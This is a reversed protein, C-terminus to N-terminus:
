CKVREYLYLYGLDKPPKESLAVKEDNYIVWRDDKLIHIVYHGSSTSNGMHSIFARLRYAGPGDRCAPGDKPTASSASTSNTTNDHQELDDAHSFIWDVAREINNDTNQLARISQARTFGMTMISAINDESITIEKKSGPIVFPSNFDPDTMHEVIWNMANEVSTSGTSYAGRLSGERSFGMEMLQQVMAEDIRVVPASVAPQNEEPLLEEDPKKGYGRLYGIDLTLPMDVLVDLKKPIWDDGVTFKKLQVLLFDPFTAFRTCKAAKTKAMMASSYFDELEETAAFAQVCSSFSLMPRVIETASPKTGSAAAAAKREEFAALEHKNMAMEMPIPVAWVYDSRSVYRVKNSQLCQFREELKFSFCESPSGTRNNREIMTLLHRFYEESDQQRKTSFEQHDKGVLTKFMHPRIGQAIPLENERPAEPPPKSYHGSWLGVAVKAMQTNFDDPPPVSLRKSFIDEAGYFYRQKFEPIVFIMQMVSNMYCSNGLNIMGTFGPGFVPQLKCDAEQLVSWEDYRQNLDLELEAMSKETKEAQQVDIGFHALHEALLPDIVMDDEDYSYVDGGTPTITGLKVALPYKTANYHEIAHNNGGTGDFFKRGCFIRGDTLNMWLNDKLDCKECKWGSPPVKIGHNLQVLEFAHKSIFRQEGDWPKMEEVKRASDCNQVGSISQQVVIPLDNTPLPITLFDPLIVLSFQEEIDYKPEGLGFGGELGIALRKPQQNGDADVKSQPVPKKTRKIHLFVSNETKAYHKEVHQRGFGLFTNLCVYLGTESEPTDFSYVCEDKYVRDNARPVRIKGAHINNLLIAETDGEGKRSM